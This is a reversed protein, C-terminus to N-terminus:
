NILNMSEGEYFSKIPIINEKSPFKKENKKEFNKFPNKKHEEHNKNYRNKESTELNIQSEFNMQKHILQKPIGSSVYSSILPLPPVKIKNINGKSQNLGLSNQTNEELILHSNNNLIKSINSQPKKITPIFTIGKLEM